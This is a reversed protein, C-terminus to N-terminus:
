PLVEDLLKYFPSARDRQILEANAKKFERIGRAIIGPQNATLNLPHYFNGGFYYLRGKPRGELDLIHHEQWNPDIM